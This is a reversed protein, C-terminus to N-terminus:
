ENEEKANNKKKKLDFTIKLSTNFRIGAGYFVGASPADFNLNQADIYLARDENNQADSIYITNM